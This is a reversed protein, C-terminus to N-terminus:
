ADWDGEFRCVPGGRHLAADGLRERVYRLSSQVATGKVRAL